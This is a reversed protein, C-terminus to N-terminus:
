PTLSLGQAEWAIIGGDLDYVQEFGLSAMLATAQGSRNGSRCYVLYTEDADLAAIDDAFTEAYFDIMTAGSLHGDEFEEPTRVDLVTIDPNAALTAAQDPTVLGFAIADAPAPNTADVAEAVAVPEGGSSGGCAALLGVALLASVRRLMASSRAGAPDAPRTDASIHHM